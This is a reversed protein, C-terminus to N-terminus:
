STSPQVLSQKQGAFHTPNAQLSSPKLSQTTISPRVDAKGHRIFLFVRSFKCPDSPWAYVSDSSRPALFRIGPCIVSSLTNEAHMRVPPLMDADQSGKKKREYIGSRGCICLTSMRHAPFPSRLRRGLHQESIGRDRWGKHEGLLTVLSYERYIDRSERLGEDQRHHALVYLLIM